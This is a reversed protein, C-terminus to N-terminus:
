DNEGMDTFQYGVNGKEFGFITRGCFVSYTERAADKYPPRMAFVPKANRFCRRVKDSFFADCRKIFDAETLPKGYYDFPFKTMAAIAEKNNTAVAAKFQAWFAAFPGAEQRIEASEALPSAFLFMMAIALLQKTIAKKKM